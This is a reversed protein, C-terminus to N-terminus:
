YPRCNENASILPKRYRSYGPNVKGWLWCVCVCVSGEIRRAREGSESGVRERVMNAWIEKKRGREIERVNM